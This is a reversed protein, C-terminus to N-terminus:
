DANQNNHTNIGSDLLLFESELTVCQSCFGHKRGHLEFQVSFTCRKVARANAHQKSVILHTQASLFM